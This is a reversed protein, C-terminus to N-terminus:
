KGWYGAQILSGVIQATALIITGIVGVLVFSWRQFWYEKKWRDDDEKRCREAWETQWRIQRENAERTEKQHRDEIARLEMDHVM